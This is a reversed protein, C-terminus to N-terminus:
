RTRRKISGITWATLGLVALIPVPWWLQGTQPLKQPKPSESPKGPTEPKESDKYHNVVYIKNGSKSYEVQYDSSINKEAVTWRHEASLDIWQHKWNNKANLKITEYKKGDRLLEITVEAPRKKKNKSDKWIKIVELKKTVEIEEKELKNFKITPHYELKGDEAQGPLTIIMPSLIYTYKQDKIQTGTILYVGEPLNEWVVRKQEAVKKTSVAKIKDATVCDELTAALARWGESDLKELQDLGKIKSQYDDFSDTLKYNKNSFNEAIQYLSIETGVVESSLTLSCVKEAADAFMPLILGLIGIFLGIIYKKIKM